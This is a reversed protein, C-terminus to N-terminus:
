GTNWKIVEYNDIEKFEIFVYDQTNINESDSKNSCTAWTLFETRRNYNILDDMYSNISKNDEIIM